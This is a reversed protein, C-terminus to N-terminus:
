PLHWGMRGQPDAFGPLDRNRDDDKGEQAM